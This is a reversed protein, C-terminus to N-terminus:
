ANERGLHSERIERILEEAEDASLSGGYVLQQVVYYCTAEFVRHKYTQEKFNCEELMVDTFKDKGYDEASYWSETLSLSILNILHEKTSMVPKRLKAIYRM